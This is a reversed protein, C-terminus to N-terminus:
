ESNLTDSQSGCFYKFVAASLNFAHTLHRAQQAHRAKNLAAAEPLTTLARLFM